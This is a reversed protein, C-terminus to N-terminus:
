LNRLPKNCGECREIQEDDVYGMLHECQSRLEAVPLAEPPPLCTYCTPYVYCERVQEVPKGCEACPTM